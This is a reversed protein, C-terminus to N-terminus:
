PLSSVCTRYFGGVRTVLGAPAGFTSQRERQRLQAPLPSTTQELVKKAGSKFQGATPTLLHRASRPSLALVGLGEFKVVILIQYRVFCCPNYTQLYRNWFEYRFLLITCSQRTKLITKSFAQFDQIKKAPLSSCLPDSKDWATSNDPGFM